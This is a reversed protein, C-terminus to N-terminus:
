HHRRPVHQLSRSNASATVTRGAPIKLREVWISVRSRCLMGNRGKPCVAGRVAVWSPALERLDDVDELRLSGAVAWPIGAQQCRRGWRQLSEPSCWSFLSTGDKIATDIMWAGLGYTVTFDLIEDPSPADARQHDAYAVAVFSAAPLSAVSRTLVRLAAPWDRRAWGALGVKLFSLAAVDVRSLVNQADDLEGLALSIRRRGGIFRVIARQTEPDVPGLSGRQPEKVDILDAGGALAEAAEAVNRVSVLLQSM